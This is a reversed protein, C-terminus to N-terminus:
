EGNMEWLVNLIVWRGDLKGIHLYDVWDSAVIKVTAANGFMDLITVDDLRREPPILSGGGGGTISALETKTMEGLEGGPRVIRKVLDAHLARAMREADGTYSGQIYDHATAVIAASDAATQASAAGPGLLGLVGLAGLMRALRPPRLSGRFGSKMM